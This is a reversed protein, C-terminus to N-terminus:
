LKIFIKVLQQKALLVSTKLQIVKGKAQALFIADILPLYIIPGDRKQLPICCWVKVKAGHL